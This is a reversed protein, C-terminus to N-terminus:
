TPGEKKGGGSLLEEIHTVAPVLREWVAKAEAHHHDLLDAIAQWHVEGTVLSRLTVNESSLRAIEKANEAREVAAAKADEAREDELDQVRARLDGAADRLTRVLGWTLGSLGTAILTTVAFVTSLFQPDFSSGVGQATM